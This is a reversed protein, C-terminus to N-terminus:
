MDGMNSTIFLKLSSTNTGIHRFSSRERMQSTGIHDAYNTWVTTKSIGDREVVTEPTNISGSHQASIALAHSIRSPMMEMLPRPRQGDLNKNKNM